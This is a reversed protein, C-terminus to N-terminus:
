VGKVITAINQKVDDIKTGDKLLQYLLYFGGGENVNTNITDDLIRGM